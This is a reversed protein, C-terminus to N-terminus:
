HRQPFCPYQNQELGFVNKGQLVFNYQMLPAEGEFSFTANPSDTVMVRLATNRWASGYRRRGPGDAHACFLWAHTVARLHIGATISVGCACWCDHSWGWLWWWVRHRRVYPFNIDMVAADGSPTREGPYVNNWTAFPELLGGTAENISAASPHWVQCLAIGPKDGRPTTKNVM